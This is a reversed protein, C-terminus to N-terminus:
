IMLICIYYVATQFIFGSWHHYCAFLFWADKCRAMDVVFSVSPFGGQLSEKRLFHLSESHKRTLMPKQAAKRLLLAEMFALLPRSTRKKVSNRFLYGSHKKAKKRTHVDLQFYLKQYRKIVIDGDIPCSCILLVSNLM